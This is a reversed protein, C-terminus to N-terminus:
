SSHGQPKTEQRIERDGPNTIIVTPLSQVDM